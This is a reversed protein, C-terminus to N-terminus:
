TTRGITRTLEHLLRRDIRPTYDLLGTIAVHMHQYAPKLTLRIAELVLDSYESANLDLHEVILALHHEDSTNTHSLPWRPIDDFEDASEILGCLIILARDRVDANTRLQHNHTVHGAYREDGITDILLVTAGLMMCAVAHGAEHAALRERDNM